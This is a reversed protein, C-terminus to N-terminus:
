HTWFVSFTLEIKCNLGVTDVAEMLLKRLAAMASLFYLGEEEFQSTPFPVAAEYARLGSNPLELCVELEHGLVYCIWFIRSFTGRFEPSENGLEVTKLVIICEQSAHNIAKWALFPRM